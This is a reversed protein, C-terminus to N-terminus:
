YAKMLVTVWWVSFQAGNKRAQLYISLYKSVQCGDGEAWGSVLM